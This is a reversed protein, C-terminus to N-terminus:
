KIVINRIKPKVAEVIRSFMSYGRKQVYAGYEAGQKIVYLFGDDSSDQNLVETGNVLTHTRNIYTKSSIEETAAAELLSFVSSKIKEWKSM